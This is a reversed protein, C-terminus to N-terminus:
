KWVGLKQLSLRIMALVMRTRFYFSKAEFTRFGQVKYRGPKLWAGRHDLALTMGKFLICVPYKATLGFNNGLRVFGQQELPVLNTAM